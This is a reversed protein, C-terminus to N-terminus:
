DAARGRPAPGPLLWVVVAVLRREDRRPSLHAVKKGTSLRHVDERWAQEAAYDELDKNSAFLYIGGISINWDRWKWRLAKISRYHEDITSCHPCPM